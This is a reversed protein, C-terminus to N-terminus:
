KETGLVDMRPRKPKCVDMPFCGTGLILSMKSDTLYSTEYPRLLLFKHCHCPRQRSQLSLM